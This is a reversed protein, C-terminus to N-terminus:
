ASKSVRCFVGYAALFWLLTWVLEHLEIIPDPFPPPITDPNYGTLVWFGVFAAFPVALWSVKFSPRAVYWGLVVIMAFDLWQAPWAGDIKTLYALIQPSAHVAVFTGNGVWEAAGYIFLLAYPFRWGFRPRLVLLAFGCYLALKYAHPVFLGFVNIRDYWGALVVSVVAEGLLVAVVM